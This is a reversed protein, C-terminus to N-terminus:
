CKKAGRPDEVLVYNDINDFKGLYLYKVYMHEQTTQEVGDVMIVSERPIAYDYVYGEPAEYSKLRNSLRAM